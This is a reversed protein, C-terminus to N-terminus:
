FTYSCWLFCICVKPLWLLLMPCSALPVVFSELRLGFLAMNLSISMCSWAIAAGRHHQSSNRPKAFFRTCDSFEVHMPRCYRCRPAWKLRLASAARSVCLRSGYRRIMPASRIHTRGKREEPDVPRHVARAKKMMLRALAQKQCPEVVLGPLVSAVKYHRPFM